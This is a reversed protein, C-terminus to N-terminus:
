FNVRVGVGIQAGGVDQKDAVGDLEVSAGAYRLYGGVAYRRTLNYNM